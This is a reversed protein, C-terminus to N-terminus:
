CSSSPAFCTLYHWSVIRHTSYTCSEMPGYIFHHRIYPQFAFIIQPLTHDKWILRPTWWKRLLPFCTHGRPLPLFYLTSPVFLAFPHFAIFPGSTLMPLGLGGYILSPVWVNDEPLISGTFLKWWIWMISTNPQLHPLGMSLTGSPSWQLSGTKHSKSQPTDACWITVWIFWM